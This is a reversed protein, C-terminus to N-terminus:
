QRGGDNLFANLYTQFYTTIEYLTRPNRWSTGAGAWIRQFVYDQLFDYIFDEFGPILFHAPMSQTEPNRSFSAMTQTVSRPDRQTAFEAARWGYEGEQQLPLYWLKIAFMIDNIEDNSFHYPIAYINYRVWSYHNQFHTGRPFTAFGWEDRLYPYIETRAASNEGTRMAYVGNYFARVYLPFGGEDQNGPRHSRAWLYTHGDSLDWDWMSDIIRVSETFLITDSANVFEGTIPDVAVFQAGNAAVIRQFLDVYCATMAHFIRGHGDHIFTVRRLFYLFDIFNWTGEAQMSFLLDRELGMEEFKRFNWYIGGAIEVGHAFGHPLGNRSTIELVCSRWQIGLRDNFHEPPIPAFFGQAHYDGFRLPDLVWVTHGGASIDESGDVLVYEITFNYQEQALRRHEERIRTVEPLETVAITIVMGGLNRLPIATKEQSYKVYLDGGT